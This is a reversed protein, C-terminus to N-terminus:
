VLNYDRQAITCKDGGEDYSVLNSVAFTVFGSSMRLLREEYLLYSPNGWGVKLYKIWM